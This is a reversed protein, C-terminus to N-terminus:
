ENSFNLYYIGEGILSVDVTDRGYLDLHEKLIRQGQPVNLRERFYIGMIDKSPFSAIQKPYKIEKNPPQSGELRGQMVRGDDWVLEIVELLKHNGGGLNPQRPPFLQPYMRIHHMRIPICADNIRVNGPESFGWNLGHSPQTEGTAPDYLPMTCIEKDYDPPLQPVEEIQVTNCEKSSQLILEVYEKLAPLQNQDIEFLSERYDNYLGNSSFNASGILGKIPLDGQLWLYCKSHCAIDSYYIRRNNNHLEVLQQHLPMMKRKNEKQLGYIIKSNFPLDGLKIVPDPGLYGSLAIFNTAQNPYTEFFLKDLDTYHLM